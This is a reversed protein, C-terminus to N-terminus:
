FDDRFLRFSKCLLVIRGAEKERVDGGVGGGGREGAGRDRYSAASSFNRSLTASSYYWPSPPCTGSRYRWAARGQANSNRSGDPHLPLLATLLSRSAHAAAALVRPPPSSRPSSRPQLVTAVCPLFPPEDAPAARVVETGRRRRLFRSWLALGVRLGLCHPGATVCRCRGLWGRSRFANSARPSRLKPASRVREM